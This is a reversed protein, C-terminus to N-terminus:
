AGRVWRRLSPGDVLSSGLRCFAPTDRLLADVQTQVPLERRRLAIRPRFPAMMDFVARQGREEILVPVRLWCMLDAWGSNPALMVRCSRLYGLERTLLAEDGLAATSAMGEPLICGGPHGYVLVPLSLHEAVACADELVKEVDSNRPDLSFSVSRMQVGVHDGYVHEGSESAFAPPLYSPPMVDGYKWPSEKDFETSVQVLEEDWRTWPRGPTTYIRGALVERWEARLRRAKERAVIQRPRNLMGREPKRVHPGVALRDAGYRRFLADEAAFLAADYLAAGAPYLEPRRSLIRWGARLWPEVRGLFYRIEIGLEGPYAPLVLGEGRPPLAQHANGGPPVLGVRELSMSVLRRKASSTAETM